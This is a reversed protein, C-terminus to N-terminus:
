GTTGNADRDATVETRAAAATRRGIETIVQRLLWTPQAGSLQGGALEFHPVGTIGALRAELELLRVEGFGDDRALRRGLDDADLGAEGALAVLTAPDGLDRGEMFYGHFLARVLASQRRPTGALWVLRHADFTNPTGTVRDYDFTAGGDRAAEITRRDLALSAEWSGFKGTRYARRDMGGAPMSPNLQFPRWRVAVEIEDPVQALAAALRREGIHCWPCIFDSTVTVAVQVRM